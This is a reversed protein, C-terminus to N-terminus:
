VTTDHEAQLMCGYRFIEALLLVCFALVAGEPIIRFQAQIFSDLGKESLMQSVQDAAMFSAAQRLYATVFLAWGVLRIRRVNDTSFPSGAKLSNVINRLMWVCFVGLLMIIDTNAIFIIKLIPTESYDIGNLSFGDLVLNSMMEPKFLLLFFSALFAGAAIWLAINLVVRLIKYFKSDILSHVM